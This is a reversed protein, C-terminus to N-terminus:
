REFTSHRIMSTDKFFKTGISSCIDFQMSFGVPWMFAGPRGRTGAVGRTRRTSERAVPIAAKHCSCKAGELALLKRQSSSESCVQSLLTSQIIAENLRQM